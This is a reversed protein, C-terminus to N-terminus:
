NTVSIDGCASTPSANETLIVSDSKLLIESTLSANATIIVSKSKLSEQEKEVPNKASSLLFSSSIPITDNSKTNTIIEAKSDDGGPQSAASSTGTPVIGTKIVM